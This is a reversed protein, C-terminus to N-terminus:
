STEPKLDGIEPGRAESGRARWSGVALQVSFVRKSKVRCEANKRRGVASWSGGAGKM